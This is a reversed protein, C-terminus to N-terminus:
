FAELNVNFEVFRITLQFFQQVKATSVGSFRYSLLYSALATRREGFPLHWISCPQYARIDIEKIKHVVSLVYIINLSLFSHGFCKAMGINKSSERERERERLREGSLV